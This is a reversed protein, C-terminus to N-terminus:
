VGSFIILMQHIEIKGNATPIESIVSFKEKELEKSYTIKLEKPTPRAKISTKFFPQVIKLRDTGLLKALSPHVTPAHTDFKGRSQIKLNNKEELKM